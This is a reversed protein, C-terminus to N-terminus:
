ALRVGALYLAFGAALLVIPVLVGYVAGKVALYHRECVAHRSHYPRGGNLYAVAERECDGIRCAPGVPEFNGTLFRRARALDARLLGPTEVAVERTVHAIFRADWYARGFVTDADRSREIYQIEDGFQDDADTM